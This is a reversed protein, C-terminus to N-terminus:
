PSGASWSAVFAEYSETRYRGSAVYALVPRLREAEVFGTAHLLYRGDPALLVVSPTATAQLHRALAAPTFRRGQYRLVADTDEHNLRTLVFGRELDGALTPYVERKMKYCWGCAPAWVDVVVPRGSTDAVALAEEFPRWSLEQATAPGYAITLAFFLAAFRLM